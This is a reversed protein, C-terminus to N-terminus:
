NPLDGYQYLPYAALLSQYEESEQFRLLAHNFRQRLLKDHFGIRYQNAPFLNHFHFEETRRHPMLKKAIHVFINADMVVADFKGELLMKVQRQQDPVEIYLPSLYAAKAFEAGLLRNANQFGILTLNKLQQIQNIDAFGPKQTIVVNQYEIYVDSFIVGESDVLNSLTLAADVQKDEVMNYSRGYPVYVFNPDSGMSQFIRRVLELEFGSNDKQVVYPPKNWGVAITVQSAKQAESGNSSMWPAVALVSLLLFQVLSQNLIKM